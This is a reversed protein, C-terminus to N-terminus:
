QKPGLAGLQRYAVFGAAQFYWEEQDPKRLSIAARVHAYRGVESDAATLDDQQPERFVRLFWYRQDPENARGPRVVALTGAKCDLLSNRFEWGAAVEPAGLGTVRLATGGILALVAGLVLAVITLARNSM